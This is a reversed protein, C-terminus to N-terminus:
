YLHAKKKKLTLSLSTQSIKMPDMYLLIKLLLKNCYLELSNKNKANVKMINNPKINQLTIDKM